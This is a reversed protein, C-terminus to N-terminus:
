HNLALTSAGPWYATSSTPGVPSIKPVLAEIVRPAPAVTLMVTVADAAEASPAAAAPPAAPPAPAAAAGPKLVASMTVVTATVAPMTPMTTATLLLLALGDRYSIYRLDTAQLNNRALGIGPGGAGDRGENKQRNGEM